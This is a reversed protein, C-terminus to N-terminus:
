NDQGLGNVAEGREQERENVAQEIQEIAKKCWNSMTRTVIGLEDAVDYDSKGEIFRAILIRRWSPEDIYNILQFVRQEAAEQRSLKETYYQTMRDIKRIVTVANNIVNISSVAGSTVLGQLYNMEARKEDICQRLLECEAHIDIYRRLDRKIEEQTMDEGTGQGSAAQNGSRHRYHASDAEIKRPLQPM